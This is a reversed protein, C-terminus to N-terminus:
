KGEPVEGETPKAEKTEDDKNEGAPAENTTGDLKEKPQLDIYALINTKLTGLAKIKSAIVAEARDDYLNIYLNLNQAYCDFRELYEKLKGLGKEEYVKTLTIFDYYALVKGKLDDRVKNDKEEFMQPALEEPCFEDILEQVGQM